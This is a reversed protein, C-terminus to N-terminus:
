GSILSEYTATFPCLFLLRTLFSMELHFLLFLYSYDCRLLACPCMATNCWWFTLPVFWLEACIEKKNRLKYEVEKMVLSATTIQHDLFWRGRFGVQSNIGVQTREWMVAAISEVIWETSVCCHAVIYNNYLNVWWKWSFPEWVERTSQPTLSKWCSM